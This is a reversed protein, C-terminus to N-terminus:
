RSALLETATAEFRQWAQQRDGDSGAQRLATSAALMEQKAAITVVVYGTEYIGQAEGAAHHHHGGDVLRKRIGGITNDGENAFLAMEAATTAYDGREMAAEAARLHHDLVSRVLDVEAQKMSLIADALSSYSAALSQPTQQAWAVGAFLAVLALALVSRKM